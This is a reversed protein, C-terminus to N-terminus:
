EMVQSRDALIERRTGSSGTSEWSRGPLLRWIEAWCLDHEGHHQQPRVGGPVAPQDPHDGEGPPHGARTRCIPSDGSGECQSLGPRPRASLHTGCRYIIEISINFRMDLNHFGEGFMLPKCLRLIAIDKDYEAQRNYEPHESKSCVEHNTWDDERTIVTINREEQGAGVNNGERM